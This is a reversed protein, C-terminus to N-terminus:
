HQGPQLAALAVRMRERLAPDLPADAQREEVLKLAEDLPAFASSKMARPLQELQWALRESRAHEPTEVGALAELAVALAADAESANGNVAVAADALRQEAQKWRRWVSLDARTRRIRERLQRARRQWGRDLEDHDLQDLEGLHRKLDEEDQEALSLALRQEIGAVLVAAQDRQQRRREERAQGQAQRANFIDDMFGRFAKQFRRHRAPPLWATARWRTQLARADQAAQHADQRQALARAEDILTERQQEAERWAQELREDIETLLASFRKQVERADTFRVPAHSKWEQPARRRIEWVAQWDANRWNEGAVFDALQQCLARRRELNEARRADLEQFHARCPQYARDSAAKFRDWLAQDQDQDSSMLARWEDHLAQIANAREEADMDAEILGEMRECLNQKKPQAAFAHWDRLEERRETHRQLQRALWADHEEALLAEAKLWLRNAHKLNGRELERSLAVVLGRHRSHSDKGRRRRTGATPEAVAEAEAETEPATADALSSPAPIRRPWSQALELRQQPDDGLDRAAEALAILRRWEDLQSRFALEQDEDGPAEEAAAQWRRQQTDVASRLEGLQQDWTESSLDRLLARLSDLAARREAVAAERAAAERQESLQKEIRQHGRALAREARQRYEPPADDAFTAWRQALQGFRAEFLPDASGRTLQELAIVAQEREQERHQRESAAKQQSKLRERALRVVKKDRGERGLQRLLADDNLREAAALRLAADPGQVALAFLVQDDHIAALAARRSAPDSSHQAVHRLVRANDTHEILRLRTAPDPGGTVNGALLAMIRQSAAERVEGDDDDRILRDLLTLDLLAAAAVARVRPSCDDRALCALTEHDRSADLAAAAAARVAADRHRWRPKFLKRLAM